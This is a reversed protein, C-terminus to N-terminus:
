LSMWGLETLVNHIVTAVILSFQFWSSTSELELQRRRIHIYLRISYKHQLGSLNSVRIFGSAIGVKTRRVMSM